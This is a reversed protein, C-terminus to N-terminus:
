MSVIHWLGTFPSEQKKKAMPMRWPERRASAAAGRDLVPLRASVAGM